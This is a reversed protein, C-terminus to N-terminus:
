ILQVLSRTAIKDVILVACCGKAELGVGWEVLRIGTLVLLGASSIPRVHRSVTTSEYMCVCKM